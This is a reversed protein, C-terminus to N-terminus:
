VGPWSPRDTMQKFNDWRMPSGISVAGVKRVRDVFRQEDYNALAGTGGFRVGSGSLSRLYSVVTLEDRDVSVGPADSPTHARHEYPVANNCVVCCQHHSICANHRRRV